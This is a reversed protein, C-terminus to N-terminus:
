GSVIEAVQRALRVAANNNLTTNAIMSTNVLFVDRLPTRMPPIHESYRLEHLPQVLPARFVRTGILGHGDLDPFVRRLHELFLARVEDDGAAALPDGPPLYKPLYVLAR